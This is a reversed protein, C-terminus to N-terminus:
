DKELFTQLRYIQLPIEEVLEELRQVRPPLSRLEHLASSVERIDEQVTVLKSVLTAAKWVIGAFGAIVPLCFGVFAVDLTIAM